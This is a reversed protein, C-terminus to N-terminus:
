DLYVHFMVCLNVMFKSVVLCNDKEDDKGNLDSIKNNHLQLHDSVMDPKTGSVTGPLLM